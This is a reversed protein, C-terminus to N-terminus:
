LTFLCTPHCLWGELLRQCGGIPYHHSQWGRLVMMIAFTLSGEWRWSSPVGLVIFPGQHDLWPLCANRLFSRSYWYTPDGFQCFSWLTHRFWRDPCRECSFLLFCREWSLLRTSWPAVTGRLCGLMLMPTTQPFSAPAFIDVGKLLREDAM